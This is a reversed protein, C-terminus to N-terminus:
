PQLNHWVGSTSVLHPLHCITTQILKILL